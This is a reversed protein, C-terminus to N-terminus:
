IFNLLPRFITQRTVLVLLPNWHKQFLTIKSFLDNSQLNIETGTDTGSLIMKRSFCAARAPSFTEHVFHQLYSISFWICILKMIKLRLRFVTCPILSSSASLVRLVCSLLCLLKTPFSWKLLFVPSGPLLNLTLILVILRHSFYSKTLVYSEYFYSVRQGSFGNWSKSTVGM